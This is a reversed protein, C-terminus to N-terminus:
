CIIKIGNYYLPLGKFVPRHIWTLFINESAWLTSYIKDDKLVAIMLGGGTDDSTFRIYEVSQSYKLLYGLNKVQRVAGRRLDLVSAM